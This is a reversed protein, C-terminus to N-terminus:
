ASGPRRRLRFPIGETRVIMFSVLQNVCVM